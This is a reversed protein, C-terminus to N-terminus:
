APGGMLCVSRTSTVSASKRKVVALLSTDGENIYVGLGRGGDAGECCGRCFHLADGGRGGVGAVEIRWDVSAKMTVKGGGCGDEM